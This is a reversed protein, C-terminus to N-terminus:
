ENYSILYINLSLALMTINNYWRHKTRWRLLILYQLRWCLKSSLTWAKRKNNRFVPCIYTISISLVLLHGNFCKILVWGEFWGEAADRNIVEIIDNESFSIEDASQAVWDYIARVIFVDLMTLCCTISDILPYVSVLTM